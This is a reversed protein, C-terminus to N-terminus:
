GALLADIARRVDAQVAEVSRAADVVRFRGPEAAALSLYGARVRAHFEDDKREMRDGAGARRAQARTPELDFLITLDPTLGGTAIQNVTRLRDLDVRAGFGQYALTSDAYRDCLVLRGARLAPLIEREVLQARAAAYLFVEALPLIDGGPDLLVSRIAEGLATSGPERLFTHPIALARLYERLLRVQTSKGAGDIGELTVFRGRM